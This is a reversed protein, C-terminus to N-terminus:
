GGGNRASRSRQPVPISGGSFARSWHGKAAAVVLAGETPDGDIVWRGEDRRLAADSALVGARLELTAATPPIAHDDALFEGVLKYGAGSVTLVQGAVFV